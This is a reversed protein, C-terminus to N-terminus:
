FALRGKMSDAFLLLLLFCLSVVLHLGDVLNPAHKAFVFLGVLSEKANKNKSLKMHFIM